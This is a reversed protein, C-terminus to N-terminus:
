RYTLAANSSNIEWSLALRKAESENGNWWEKLYLFGTNLKWVLVVTM